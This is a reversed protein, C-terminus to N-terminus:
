VRRSHHPLILALVAVLYCLVGSWFAASIGAGMAIVVAVVSSVVSMAGNIGWLWPTLTSSRASAAKMGLPFPMGMFLGAPFLLGTALLIRIPTTAAQFARIVSPTAIGFIVLILLLGLLRRRVSGAPDVSGSIKRTSFSGLGSSLLLTTLVVSLGYTPHGLFVILRQMQSIEVLMYGLGIGAFFVFLWGAGSPPVRRRTLLLPVIICLFALGIVSVLSVGLIYVAIATGLGSALSGWVGKRFVDQFRTTFFFFPRDDTPPSLDMLLDAMMADLDDTSVIQTITDDSSTRPSLIIEFQMQRAVEEITNLDAESFPANSVLLTGIGIEGEGQEDQRMNALLVLHDRPDEAGAQNLSARALAVLRYTESPSSPIHWRSVSLVGEPTLHDMLTDWAEVTYLSHETLVFAGAATAAWTDILSIQIIDYDDTQRAIYSRAEDVRYDVQPYSELHGTFNGLTQNAVDLIDQNVEIGVISEQDFALAALVDRGGGVGVIFVASDPRIYHVVHSVDYKLYEVDDFDGDFGTLITDAAADIELHLQRVKHEKPYVPSIGYGYPSEPTDPDGWVVIRSFSNWKEHLPSPEVNGKAWKVSLWPSRQGALMALLTVSSLLIAACTALSVLLRRRTGASLSFLLGGLSALFAVGLVATPGDTVKLIYIFLLCGVAAGALDVAYLKSTQDSVKTLALSVSIGGLVFPVSIVLYTLVIAVLGGAAEGPVFVPLNMHVLFSVVVFVAFLLTSLALHHRARERTFLKPLLYVLIAGVTMGFLAISVALFAFHHWMTVSFIRTLLLEYMLTALTVMFLGAYVSREIKPQTNM